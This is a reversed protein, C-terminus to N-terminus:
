VIWNEEKKGFRVKFYDIVPITIEQGEKEKVTINFFIIQEGEPLIEKRPIRVEIIDDRVFFLSESSNCTHGIKFTKKVSNRFSLLIEIDDRKSVDIRIYLNDEDYGYFIKRVPFEVPKFTIWLSFVDVEVANYWEYFHTIKGDISPTIYPITDDEVYQEVPLTLFEPPELGATEYIKRINHRFYIDFRIKIERDVPLSYWWFWDSSEALMIYDMIVKKKEENNISKMREEAADRAQKLIMWAKNAPEKGIWNDFNVGMWSGPSIRDIKNHIINSKLAESFTITKISNADSLREYLTYLFNLGYDPYFDWPNEGDLIISIIRDPSGESIHNLREFLQIASKKEEMKQYAFGILDSIHHDRFFISVGNKYEWITLHERNVLPRSLTEALLHEDTATWLLNHETFLELIEDSLSGESPWMGSPAKGFINKYTEIGETIHRRADQPYSFIAEPIHLSTKTRKAIDTNYLLPLIPHMMPSTSIEIQENEMIAKYKNITGNMIKGEKKYLLEREDDNFYRGKKFLQEIEDDVILPHFCVLHLLIKIDSIDKESYSRNEIKDLLLNVAPHRKLIFSPLERAIMLVERADGEKERLLSMFRDEYKGSSVGEIQKLLVPTINFNLKVLPFNEALVAMPYYNFLTRFLLIPTNIKGEIV